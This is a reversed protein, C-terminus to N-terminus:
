HFTATLLLGAGVLNRNSDVGGSPNPASSALLSLSAGLGWRRSIWFLKGLSLHVGPGLGSSDSNPIEVGLRTPQGEVSSRAAGISLSLYVNAPMLWYTAGIGVHLATFVTERLVGHEAAGARSLVIDMNLSLQDAVMMGLAFEFQAAVGATTSAEADGFDQAGHLYGPGALARLQVGLHRREQAAAGRVEIACETGLVLALALVLRARM